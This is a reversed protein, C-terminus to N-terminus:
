KLPPAPMLRSLARGDADLLLLAGNSEFRL